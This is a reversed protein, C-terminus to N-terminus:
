GRSSRVAAARKEYLNASWGDGDVRGVCAYGADLYYRNLRENAAMCDLRILRKGYAAIRNEADQLLRLGLGRGGFARKVALRHIYGAEAHDREKWIFPDSWVLLYTGAVGDETEALWVETDRICAAADEPSFRAPHWQDIGRVQLWRAADLWVELVDGADDPTARRIRVDQTM